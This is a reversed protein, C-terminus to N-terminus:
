FELVWSFLEKFESPRTLPAKNQYVELIGSYEYNPALGTRVIENPLFLQRTAYDSVININVSLESYLGVQRYTEGSLESTLLEAEIYIWRAREQKANEYIEEENEGSIPRWSYGGVSITGATDSVVISMSSYRKFGIPNILQSNVLSPLPPNENGEFLDWGSTPGASICMMLGSQLTKNRNKKYFDIAKGTRAIYPSIAFSVDNLPM